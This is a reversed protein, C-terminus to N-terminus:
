CFDKTGLWSILVRALWGRKDGEGLEWKSAVELNYQWVVEPIMTSWVTVKCSGILLAALAVALRDPFEAAEPNRQQLMFM